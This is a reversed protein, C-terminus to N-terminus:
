WGLVQQHWLQHTDRGRVLVTSVIVRGTSLLWGEDEAIGSGADKLMM